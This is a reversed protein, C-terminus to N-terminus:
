MKRKGVGPKPPRSKGVQQQLAFKSVQAQLEVSIHSFPTQGSLRHDSPFPAHFANCNVRLLTDVLKHNDPHNLINDNHANHTIYGILHQVINLNKSSTWNHYVNKLRLVNQWQVLNPITHDIINTNLFKEAADPQTLRQEVYQCGAPSKLVTEVHKSHRQLANDLWIDGGLTHAHLNFFEYVTNKETPPLADITNAIKAVQELSCNFVDFEWNEVPPINDKAVRRAIQTALHVHEMRAAFKLAVMCTTAMSGAINRFTSHQEANDIFADLHTDLWTAFNTNNNHDLSWRFTYNFCDLRKILDNSFYNLCNLDGEMVLVTLDKHAKTTQDPFLLQFVPLDFNKLCAAFLDQGDVMGRVRAGNKLALTVLACDKSTIGELLLAKADNKSMKAVPERKRQEQDHIIQEFINM